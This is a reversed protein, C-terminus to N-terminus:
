QPTPISLARHDITTTTVDPRIPQIVVILPALCIRIPMHLENVSHDLIPQLALSGRRFARIESAIERTFIQLAFRGQTCLASYSPPPTPSKLPVLGIRDLKGWRLEGQM